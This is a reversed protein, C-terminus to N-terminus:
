AAKGKKPPKAEAVAISLRRGEERRWGRTKAETHLQLAAPDGMHVAEGLAATNLEWHEPVHRFFEPTIKSYFAMAEQVGADGWNGPDNAPWSVDIATSKVSLPGLARLGNAEMHLILEDRVKRLARNIRLQVQQLVAYAGARDEITLERDILVSLAKDVSAATRVETSM